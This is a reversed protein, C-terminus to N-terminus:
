DRGTGSCNWVWAASAGPFLAIRDSALRGAFRNPGLRGDYRACGDNDILKTGAVFLRTGDDSNLIFQYIGTQPVKIFGTYRLAFNETRHFEALDVADAVRTESPTLKSFDPLATWQGEYLAVSLGPQNVEADVPKIPIAKRIVQRVPVSIIGDPWFSRATVTTTATLLVPETYLTSDATPESGDLTYRIQSRKDGTWCSGPRTLLCRCM